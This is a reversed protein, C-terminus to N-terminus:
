PAAHSHEEYAIIDSKRMHLFEQDFLKMKTGSYTGFIVTMGVKLHTLDPHAGIAVITGFDQEEAIKETLLITSSTQVKEARKVIIRGPLPKFNSLM